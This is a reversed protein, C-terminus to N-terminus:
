STQGWENAVSALLGEFDNMKQIQSEGQLRTVTASGDPFVLSAIRVGRKGDVIEIKQHTLCLRRDSVHNEYKVDVRTPLIDVVAAEYNQHNTALKNKVTAM